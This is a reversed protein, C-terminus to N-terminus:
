RPSELGLRSRIAARSDRLIRASAESDTVARSLSLAGVLEAVVSSALAAPHPRGLARLRAAFSETM